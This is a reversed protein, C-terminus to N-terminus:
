RPAPAAVGTRARVSALQRAREAANLPILGARDLPSGPGSVQPSLFFQVFEMLGPIVGIHADKVYFYLARSIPYRGSEITEISPSVGSISALQLRDRNTEYFSLGFVGVAHHQADLRALTETYDGAIEIVRGDTRIARCFADAQAANAARMTRVEPLTNCGPIVAREDYVERTGHNGGPIVLTIEQNPLTRDIQSWRTHPNPVM